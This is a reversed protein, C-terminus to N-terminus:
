RRPAFAVFINQVTLLHPDTEGVRGVVKKEKAPGIFLLASIAIM